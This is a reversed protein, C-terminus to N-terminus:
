PMTVGSSATPRDMSSALTSPSPATSSPTSSPPPPAVVERDQRRRALVRRIVWWAIAVALMALLFVPAGQALPVMPGRDTVLGGNVRLEPLLNTALQLRWMRCTSLGFECSHTASRSLVTRSGDVTSVDVIDYSSEPVVVHHVLLSTPSRWGLLTACGLERIAPPATGGTLDVFEVAAGWAPTDCASGSDAVGLALLRGDPSWAAGAEPLTSAPVPLTQLVTGDVSLLTVGTRTVLALRNSDPSFAAALALGPEGRVPGGTPVVRAQDSRLDLIVLVWSPETQPPNVQGVCNPNGTPATYAVYRVDPSWALLVECREKADSRRIDGAPGHRAQLEGTTLDLLAFGPEPLEQPYLVQTGDPSLLVRRQPLVDGDGPVDVTRYSARDAGLVLTQAMGSTLEWEGQGYLAIARGAPHQRVSATFQSYGAFDAPLTPAATVAAPGPWTAASVVPVTAVMALVASMIVSRRM